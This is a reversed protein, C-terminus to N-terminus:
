GHAAESLAAAIRTKGLRALATATSEDQRRTQAIKHALAALRVPLTEVAMGAMPTDSAAGDLVVGCGGSKGVITLASDAHHACGKACGSLHLV